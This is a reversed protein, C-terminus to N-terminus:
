NTWWSCVARSREAASGVRDALLGGHCRCLRRVANKRKGLLRTLTVALPHVDAEAPLEVNAGEACARRVLCLGALVYDIGFTMESVRGEQVVRGNVYTRLVSDRVDVGRVTVIPAKNGPANKIEGCLAVGLAAAKCGVPAM